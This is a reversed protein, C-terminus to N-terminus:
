GNNEKNEICIDIDNIAEEEKDIVEKKILWPRPEITFDITFTWLENPVMNIFNPKINLNFYKRFIKKKTEFEMLLVWNRLYCLNTKCMLSMTDLFDIFCTEANIRGITLSGTFEVTLPDHSIIGGDSFYNSNSDNYNSNHTFESVNPLLFAKEVIIKPKKTVDQAKEVKYKGLWFNVKINSALLDCGDTGEDNVKTVTINIDDCIKPEKKVEEEKLLVTEM